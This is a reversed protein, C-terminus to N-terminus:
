MKLSCIKFVFMHNWQRKRFTTISEIIIWVLYFNHAEGRYGYQCMCLYTNIGEICTGGYYCPNANCRRGYECLKGKLDGKCKCYFDNPSDPIVRCEGDNRCPDDACPDTDLECRTGQFRKPCICNYTLKGDTECRGGNMCPLTSCIDSFNMYNNMNKPEYNEHLVIEVMISNNKLQLSNQCVGLYFYLKLSFPLNM